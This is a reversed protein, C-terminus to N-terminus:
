TRDRHQLLTDEWGDNGVKAEALGRLLGADLTATIMEKCLLFGVCNALPLRCCVWLQSLDQSRGPHEIRGEAKKRSGQDPTGGQAQGEKCGAGENEM